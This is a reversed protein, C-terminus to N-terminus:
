WYRALFTGSRIGQGSNIGISKIDHLHGAFHLNGVVHMPGQNKNVFIGHWHVSIDGSPYDCPVIRLTFLQPHLRQLWDWEFNPTIQVGESLNAGWATDLVATQEGDHGRDANINGGAYGFRARSANLINLTICDAKRPEFCCQMEIWERAPYSLRLEDGFTRDGTSIVFTKVDVHLQGPRRHWRGNKAFFGDDWASRAEQFVDGDAPATPFTM